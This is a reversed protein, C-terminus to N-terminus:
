MADFQGTLTVRPGHTYRDPTLSDRASNSENFVNVLADLRYSAGLKLNQTLWYSDGVQIDASLVGAFMRDTTTSLSNPLGGVALYSPTVSYLVTRTDVSQQRGFLLAADGLYDFSWKGAFPVSGEVGILPGAGVFSARTDDLTTATTSFSTVNPFGPVVLNVGTVTQAQDDSTAYRTAFEAVRFGGKLQLASPGTGAIDRGVALDALWRTEKYAAQFTESAFATAPGSILTASSSASGDTKGAEGYRFQGSVHWPSGAFRHDFGTAVEWGIKPTLDFQGVISGFGSAGILSYSQLKPDGGSWIAGGEIWARFQGPVAPPLAKIPMRPM